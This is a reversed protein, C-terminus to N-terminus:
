QLKNKFIKKIKIKQYLSDELASRLKLMYKKSYFGSCFSNIFRKKAIKYRCNKQFLLVSYKEIENKLILSSQKDFAKSM